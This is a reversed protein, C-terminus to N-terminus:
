LQSAKETERNSTFALRAGDPSWRPSADRRDGFTFRRPAQSGDTPVVWIATLYKSEDRDMTTVVYACTKGDPTLRPDSVAILDYVDEPKMGRPSAMVPIKASRAADRCALSVLEHDPDSQPAHALALLGHIADDHGVGM